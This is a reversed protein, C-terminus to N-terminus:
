LPQQLCTCHPLQHMTPDSNSVIIRNHYAQLMEFPRTVARKYGVRPVGDQDERSEHGGRGRGGGEDEVELGYPACVTSTSAAVLPVATPVAELQAICQRLQMCSTRSTKRERSGDKNLHGWQTTQPRPRAPLAAGAGATTTTAWAMDVGNGLPTYGGANRLLKMAANVHRSRSHRGFCQVPVLLILQLKMVTV